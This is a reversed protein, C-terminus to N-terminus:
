ALQRMRAVVAFDMFYDVFLANDDNNIAYQCFQERAHLTGRLESSKLSVLEKVLKNIFNIGEFFENMMIIKNDSQKANIAKSISLNIDDLLVLNKNTSM